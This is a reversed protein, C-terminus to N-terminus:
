DHFNYDRGLEKAKKDYNRAAEVDDDFSGLAIVKGAKGNRDRIQAIWKKNKVHWSVGKFRSARPGKEPARTIAQEPTEGMSLRRLLEAVGIRCIPQQTWQSPTLTMGYATITQPSM